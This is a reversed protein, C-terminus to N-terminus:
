GLFSQLFFFLSLSASNMWWGRFRPPYYFRNVNEVQQSRKASRTFSSRRKPSLVLILDVLLSLSLLPFSPSFFFLSLYFRSANTSPMVTPIQLIRNIIFIKNRLTLRKRAHLLKFIWIHSARELYFPATLPRPNFVDIYSINDLYQCSITIMRSYRATYISLRHFVAVIFLIFPWREDEAFKFRKEVSTCIKYSWM